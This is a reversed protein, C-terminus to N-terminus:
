RLVPSRTRSRKAFRAMEVVVAPRESRCLFTVVCDDCVGADREPCCECDITLSDSMAERKTLHAAVTDLPHSM